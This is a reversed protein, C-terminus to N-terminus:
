FFFDGERSFIIRSQNKKKKSPANDSPAVEVPLQKAKVEEIPIKPVIKVTENENIEEDNSNDGRVQSPVVHLNVIKASPKGGMRDDLCTPTM